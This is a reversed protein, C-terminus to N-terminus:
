MCVSRRETYTGALPVFCLMADIQKTHGNCFQGIGPASAPQLNQRSGVGSFGHARRVSRIQVQLRKVMDAMAESSGDDLVHVVLRSGPYNLNLAALCTPEVVDVPEAALVCFLLREHCTNLIDLSAADAPLSATM